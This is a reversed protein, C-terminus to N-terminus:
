NSTPWLALPQLNAAWYKHQYGHM